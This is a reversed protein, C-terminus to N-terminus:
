KQLVESPRLQPNPTIMKKQIGSSVQVRLFMFLIVVTRVFHHFQEFSLYRHSINEDKQFISLVKFISRTYETM